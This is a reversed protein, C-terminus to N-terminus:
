LLVWTIIGVEGQAWRADVIYLQRAEASLDEENSSM